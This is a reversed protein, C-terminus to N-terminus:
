EEGENRPAPAFSAPTPKRSAPPPAPCLEAEPLVDMLAGIAVQLPIDDNTSM